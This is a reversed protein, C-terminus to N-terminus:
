HVEGRGQRPRVLVVLAPVALALAALMIRGRAIAGESYSWMRAQPRGVV